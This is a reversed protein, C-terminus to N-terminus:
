AMEDVAFRCLRAMLEGVGAATDKETVAAMIRARRGGDRMDGEEGARRLELSIRERVTNRFGLGPPGARALSLGVAPQWHDNSGSLRAVVSSAPNTIVAPLRRSPNQFERGSDAPM